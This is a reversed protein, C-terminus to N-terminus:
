RALAVRRTSRIFQCTQGIKQGYGWGGTVVYPVETSRVLIPRLRLVGRTSLTDVTAPMDMNMMAAVQCNLHIEAALGLPVTERGRDRDNDHGLPRRLINRFRWGAAMASYAKCIQPVVVCGRGVSCRPSSTGVALEHRDAAVRDARKCFCPFNGLTHARPLPTGATVGAASGTLGDSPWLMRSFRGLRDRRSM